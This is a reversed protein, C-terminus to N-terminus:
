IPSWIILSGCGNDGGSAFFDGFNSLSCVSAQHGHLQTILSGNATSYIYICRDKSGVAIHKGGNIFITCLIVDQAQQCSILASMSGPDAVMRINDVKETILTQEDESVRMSVNKNNSQKNPECVKYNYNDRESQRNNRYETSSAPRSYKPSLAEGYAGSKSYNRPSKGM